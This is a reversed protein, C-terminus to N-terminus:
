MQLKTYVSTSTSYKLDVVFVQMQLGDAEDEHHEEAHNQDDLDDAHQDMSPAGDALDDGGGVQRHALAFGLVVGILTVQLLVRVGDDTLQLPLRLPLVLPSVGPSADGSPPVRDTRQQGRLVLAPM